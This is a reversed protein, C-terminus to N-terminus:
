CACRDCGAREGLDATPVEGAQVPGVHGVGAGGRRCGQVAEGFGSLGLALM